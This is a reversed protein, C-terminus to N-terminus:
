RQPSVPAVSGLTELGSKLDASPGRVVIIVGGPFFWEKVAAKVTDSDPRRVLGPFNALYNTGLRYLEADLLTGCLGATTSNTKSFEEIWRGRAAELEEGSPPVAKFQEVVDLIKRIEAVAQDAAAQGQVYFPGPMRRADSAVTLLSTPLTKTMREQLVRAALGAAYFEPEERRPWLNGLVFQAAPSAPDDEFFVTRSSPKRPPLFTFPVEDKRVWVGWIRTVKQVVQASPASSAVVMAAANPSYFRRYFLRVDGISINKLSEPTGRLPRGYTTGRFITEEFQNRARQRPDEPEALEQLLESKVAQFDAEEFLAEGIIQYLYLLSREYTPSAGRVLFRTGDWDCRVELTAGLYSLEGQLDKAGREQSAKGIMRATLHALGGKDTPDFASGYRLVVGITMDEGMQPTGAVIVQLDNLLRKQTLEPFIGQQQDQAASLGSGFCATSMLIIVGLSNRMTMTLGTGSLEFAVMGNSMGVLKAQLGSAAM